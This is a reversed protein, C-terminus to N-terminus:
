KWPASVEPPPREASDSASPQRRPVSPGDPGWGPWASSMGPSHTEPLTQTPPPLPTPRIKEKGESVRDRCRCIISFRTIALARSSVTDKGEMGPTGLQALLPHPPFHLAPAPVSNTWSRLPTVKLSPEQGARM